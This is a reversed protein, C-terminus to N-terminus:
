AAGLRASARQMAWEAEAQATVADVLEAYCGDVGLRARQELTVRLPMPSELDRRLADLAAAVYQAATTHVLDLGAAVYTGLTSVQVQGGPTKMLLGRVICKEALQSLNGLGCGMSDTLERLTPLRGWARSFALVQAVFERQRDTPPRTGRKDGTTGRLEEYSPTVAPRQPAEYTGPIRRGRPARVVSGDAARHNGEDKRM